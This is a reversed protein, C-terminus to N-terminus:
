PSQSNLYPSIQTQCRKNTRRLFLVWVNQGMM